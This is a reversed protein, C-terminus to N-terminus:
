PHFLNITLVCVPFFRLASLGFRPRTISDVRKLPYKSGYMLWTQSFHLDVGSATSVCDAKPVMWPVTDLSTSVKLLPLKEFGLVASINEFLVPGKRVFVKPMHAKVGRM